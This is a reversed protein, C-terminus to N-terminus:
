LINDKAYHPQTVFDDQSAKLSSDLSSDRSEPYDCFVPNDEIIEAIFRMLHLAETHAQESSLEEGFYKKHLEQYKAIQEETLSTPKFIPM